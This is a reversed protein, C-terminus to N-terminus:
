KEEFKIVEIGAEKFIQQSMEDPYSGKYIVKKIGANVIMKACIVCPYTTTYIVSGDIVVGM